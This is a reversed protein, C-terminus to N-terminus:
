PATTAPRNSAEPVTPAPINSEDARHRVLKDRYLLGIMYEYCSMLRALHWGAAGDLIPSGSPGPRHDLGAFKDTTRGSELGFRRVWDLHEERLM